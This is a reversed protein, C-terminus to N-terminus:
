RKKKAEAELAGVREELKAIEDLPTQLSPGVKDPSVRIVDGHMTVTASGDTSSLIKM